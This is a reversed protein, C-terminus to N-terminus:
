TSRSSAGNDVMTLDDNKDEKLTEIWEMWSVERHGDERPKYKGDFLHTYLKHKSEFSIGCSCYWNPWMM